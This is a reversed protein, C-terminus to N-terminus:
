RQWLDGLSEGNIQIAERVQSIIQDLEITSATKMIVHGIRSTGNQVAEVIDGAQYDLSIQISDSCLHDVQHQNIYTITGKQPSFLLKAMCPVPPHFTFHNTRGLSNNIMQEYYDFGGYTSILEPICTAGARGGIELIYAQDKTVLVDANIACNDLGAAKVALEMQHLIEAELLASCHFPFAHGEPLTTGGVTHTFKDHPLLFSIKGNSIFGDVGIEHADIFQEILVYEQKSVACAAEFASRLGAESEVKTIGRSGSSDVAKVMVPPGFHSFADLAEHYSCAKAAAPTAVNNATFVAKMKAKDTVTKAAAASLGTLGLSDCLIGLTHIAVDTGSTCVGSLNAQRALTLLRAHDRTDVEWVEDALALGPYNGPYSATITHLDMEKAKKILPVQYIGAGLILLKEM